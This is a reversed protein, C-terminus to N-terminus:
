AAIVVARAHSMAVCVVPGTRRNAWGSTGYPYALAVRFVPGEPSNPAYDFFSPGCDDGRAM